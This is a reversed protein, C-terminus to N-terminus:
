NEANGSVEKCTRHWGSAEPVFYGFALSLSWKPSNVGHFRRRGEFSSSM